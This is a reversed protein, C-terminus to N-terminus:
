WIENSYKEFWTFQFTILLVEIDTEPSGKEVDAFSLYTEIM